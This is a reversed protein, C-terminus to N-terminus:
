RSGSTQSQPGDKEILYPKIRCYVSQPGDKEDKDPVNRGCTGEVHRSQYSAAPSITVKRSVRDRQPGDFAPGPHRTQLSDTTVGHGARVNARLAMRCM